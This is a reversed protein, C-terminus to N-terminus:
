PTIDFLYHVLPRWDTREFGVQILQRVKQPDKRGMDEAFARLYLPLTKREREMGRKIGSLVGNIKLPNGGRFISRLRNKPVRKLFAFPHVNHEWLQNGLQTLHFTTKALKWPLFDSMRAGLSDTKEFIERVRDADAKSCEPVAKGEPLPTEDIANQAGAVQLLSDASNSLLTFHRKKKIVAPVFTSVAVFSFAYIASRGAKDWPPTDPSSLMEEYQSDDSSLSEIM